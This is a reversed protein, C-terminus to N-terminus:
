APRVTTKEIQRETVEIVVVGPVRTLADDELLRQVTDSIVIIVNSRLYLVQERQLFRPVEVSRTVILSVVLQLLLRDSASPDIVISRAKALNRASEETWHEGSIDLSSEIVYPTEGTIDTLVKPLGLDVDCDIERKILLAETKPNISQVIERLRTAIDIM